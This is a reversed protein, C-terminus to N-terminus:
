IISFDKARPIKRKVRKKTIALGLFRPMPQDAHNPARIQKAKPRIEKASTIYMVRKTQSAVMAKTNKITIEMIKSNGKAHVFMGHLSVKSLSGQSPNLIGELYDSFYPNSK